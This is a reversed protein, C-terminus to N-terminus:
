FRDKKWEEKISDLIEEDTLILKKVLEKQGKKILNAVKTLISKRTIKANKEFEQGKKDLNLYEYVKCAYRFSFDCLSSYTQSGVAAYIEIEQPTIESYGEQIMEKRIRDIRNIYDTM